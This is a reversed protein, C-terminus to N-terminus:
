SESDERKTTSPAFSGVLNEAEAPNDLAWRYLKWALKAAYGLNKTKSTLMLNEPYNDLPNGNIHHVVEESSLPRGLVESMVLRHEAVVGKTAMPNRPAYVSRYGNSIWTAGTDQATGRRSYGPDYLKTPLVGLLSAYREITKYSVGFKRAVTNIFLGEEFAASLLEKNFLEPYKVQGKLM